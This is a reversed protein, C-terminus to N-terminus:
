FVDTYNYIDIKKNKYNLSLMKCIKKIQNNISGTDLSKIEDITYKVIDVGIYYTYEEISSDIYPFQIFMDINSKKYKSELLDHYTWLNSLCLEDCDEDNEGLEEENYEELVSNRIEKYIDSKKLNLAENYTFSIGYVSNTEINDGM